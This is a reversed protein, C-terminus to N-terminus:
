GEQQRASIEGKVDQSRGKPKWLLILCVNLPFLNKLFVKKPLEAERRGGYWPRHFSSFKGLFNGGIPPQLDRSFPSRADVSRTLLLIVTIFTFSFLKRLIKKM